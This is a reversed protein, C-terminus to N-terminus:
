LERLSRATNRVHGGARRVAPGSGTVVRYSLRRLQASAPPGGVREFREVPWGRSHACATLRRDANVCVPLGVAELMPLDSAFSDGYAHSRALDVGHAAALERVSDAKGV